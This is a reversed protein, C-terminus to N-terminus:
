PKNKRRRLRRRDAKRMPRQQSAADKRTRRARQRNRLRLLRTRVHPFIVTQRVGLVQAIKRRERPRARVKGTIVRSLRAQPIKAREALTAQSLNRRGLEAKLDSLM